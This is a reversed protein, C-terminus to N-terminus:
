GKSKFKIVTHTGDCFPKNNSGGCRCLTMRNRVEYVTGDASEIPVGGLFKTGGPLSLAADKLGSPRTIHAMNLPVYAGLDEANKKDPAM